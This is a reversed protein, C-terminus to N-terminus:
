DSRKSKCHLYKSGRGVHTVNLLIRVKGPITTYKLTCISNSYSEHARHDDEYPDHVKMYYEPDDEPIAKEVPASEDPLREDDSDDSYTKGAEERKRIREQLEKAPNFVGGTQKGCEYCRQSKKYHELACKECFYHKCRLDTNIM